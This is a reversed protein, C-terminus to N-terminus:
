HMIIYVINMINFIPLGYSNKYENILLRLLIIALVITLITKFLINLLPMQGINESFMLGSVVKFGSPVINVPLYTAMIFIIIGTFYKTLHYKEWGLELLKFM